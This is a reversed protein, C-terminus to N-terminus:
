DKKEGRRNMRTCIEMCMDFDGITFGRESYFTLFEDGKLRSGQRKM